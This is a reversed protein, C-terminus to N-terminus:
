READVILFDGLKTWEDLALDNAVVIRASGTGSSSLRIRTANLPRASNRVPGLGQVGCPGRGSETAGPDSPEDPPVVRLLVKVM